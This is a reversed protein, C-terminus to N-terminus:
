FIVARYYVCIENDKVIGSYSWINRSAIILSRMFHTTGTILSWLLCHTLHWLPLHSFDDWPILILTTTVYATGSCENYRTSSFPDPKLKSRSTEVINTYKFINDINAKALALIPLMCLYTLKLSFWALCRSNHEYVNASLMSSVTANCCIAIFPSSKKKM